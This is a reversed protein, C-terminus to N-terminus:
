KEDGKDELLSAIHICDSALNAVRTDVINKAEDEYKLYVHLDYDEPADKPLRVKSACSNNIIGNQICNEETLLDLYNIIAEYGNQKAEYFPQYVSNEKSYESLLSKAMSEASARGNNLYANGIVDTSLEERAPNSRIFNLLETYEDIVDIIQGGQDGYDQKAKEAFSSFREGLTNAYSQDYIGAATNISKLYEYNNGKISSSTIPEKSEKGYFLFNAYSYFLEKTEKKLQASLPNATSGGRFRAAAILAIVGIFVVAVVAAIGIFLGKRSRKPQEVPTNAAMASNFFEPTAVNNNSFDRMGGSRRQAYSLHDPKNQANEGGLSPEATAEPMPEPEPEPEQSPQTEPEDEAFIDRPETDDDAETPEETAETSDSNDDADNASEVYSQDVENSEDVPEDDHHISFMGDSNDASSNNDSIIPTNPDEGENM